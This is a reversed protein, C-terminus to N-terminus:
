WTVNVTSEWVSMGNNMCSDNDNVINVSDDVRMLLGATSLWSNVVLIKNLRKTKEPNWLNIKMYKRSLCRIIYIKM